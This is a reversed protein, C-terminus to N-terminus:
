IILDKLQLNLLRAQYPSAFRMSLANVYISKGGNSSKVAFKVCDMKKVNGGGGFVNVNMDTSNLKELDLRQRAAPSIYSHQSGSDFLIRLNECKRENTSSVKARATQLLVNNGDGIFTTTSTKTTSSATEKNETPNDPNDKSEIDKEPSKVCIASHHKGNCKFCKSRERCDRVTHGKELCLFCM